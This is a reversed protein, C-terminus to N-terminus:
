MAKLCDKFHPNILSTDLIRNVKIATRHSDVFFDSIRLDKSRFSYVYSYLEEDTLSDNENKLVTLKTARLKNVHDTWTAELQVISDLYPEALVCYYGDMEMLQDLHKRGPREYRILNELNPGYRVADQEYAKRSIWYLLEENCIFSGKLYSDFYEDAATYDKQVVLDAYDKISFM